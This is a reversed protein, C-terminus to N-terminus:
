KNPEVCFVHEHHLMQVETEVRLVGVGGGVHGRVQVTVLELESHVPREAGGTRGVLLLVMVVVILLLLAVVVVMGVVIAPVTHSTSMSVAIAGALGVRGM